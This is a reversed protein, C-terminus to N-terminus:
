SVPIVQAVGDIEGLLIRFRDGYCVPEGAGTGDLRPHILFSFSLLLFPAEQAGFSM